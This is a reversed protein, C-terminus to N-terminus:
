KAKRFTFPLCLLGGLPLAFASSKGKDLFHETLSGIIRYSGQLDMTEKAPSEFHHSDRSIFSVEQWLSSWTQSDALPRPNATLAHIRLWDLRNAFPSEKLGFALSDSKWEKQSFSGVRVLPALQEKILQNARSLFGILTQYLVRLNLYQPHHDMVIRITNFLNWWRFHTVSRNTSALGHLNERKKHAIGRNPYADLIKSFSSKELSITYSIRRKFAAELIWRIALTQQRDRAVIGPVDYITGAIHM